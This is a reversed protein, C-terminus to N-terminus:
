GLRPLVSDLRQSSLCPSMEYISIYFIPGVDEPSMLLTNATEATRDDGRWAAMRSKVMKPSSSDLAGALEPSMPDRQSLRRLLSSQPTWRTAEQMASLTAASEGAHEAAALKQHLRIGDMQLPFGDIGLLLSVKRPQDLM